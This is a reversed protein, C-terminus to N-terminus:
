QGGIPVLKSQTWSTSPDQGQPANQGGRLDQISRTRMSVDSPEEARPRVLDRPDDVQEALTQQTACGLNSYPRNSLDFTPDSLGLDEPWEGCPRATGAQLRLFSLRLVSALHPDVARYIGVEISGTIGSAALGRRLAMLTAEAAAPDAGGRPVLVRIRGRGEERYEAAFSALDHRQRDDLRDGTTVFIDLLRPRVALVVPHRQHYDVPIASTAVARDVNSCGTLSVSFALMAVAAGATRRSSLDTGRAPQNLTM